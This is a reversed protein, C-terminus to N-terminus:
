SGAEDFVFGPRAVDRAVTSALVQPSQWISGAQWRLWKAWETVAGSGFGRRM